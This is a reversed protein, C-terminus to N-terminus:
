LKDWGLQKEAKEWPVANKINEETLEEKLSMLDLEDEIKELGKEVLKKVISSLSMHKNKSLIHIIEMEDPNLCVQIRPNKAPM